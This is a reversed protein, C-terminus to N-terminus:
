TAPVDCYGIHLRYEDTLPARVIAASLSRSAQMLVSVFIDIDDRVEQYERASQGEAAGHGVGIAHGLQVALQCLQLIGGLSGFILSVEM